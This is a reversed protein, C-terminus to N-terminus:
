KGDATTAHPEPGTGADGAGPFVVEAKFLDGDATVSLSGGMAAALGSAISLGLGSGEGSRSNDGRVFRETLEAGTKELPQESINRFVTAIKDGRHEVSLYVRTGPMAYKCINGLLNDWIRWVLRGDATVLAPTDTGSLVLKLDKAALREAYEGATQSAMVALDLPEKKAEINGTAAKSAEVLDDILKKMRQSQRSLVEVYEAAKGDLEERGLLDVYNVISTLPTKIDHSVNTILETKMRESKMRADVARSLGRSINGLDTGLCKLEYPMFTTDPVAGIVGAAMKEASSRLKAVSIAYWVAGCILAIDFLILLAISGVGIFIAELLVFALVAVVSRWIFPLRRFLKAALGFVARVARLMLYLIMYTLTNRWWKGAKIRAALSVPVWEAIALCVIVSVVSVTVGLPWILMPDSDLTLLCLYSLGAIIFCILIASLDLPIRSLFSLHIGDDKETRGAACCLFVFCLIVAALSVLAFFFVAYRLRWAAEGLRLLVSIMDGTRPTDYLDVSVTLIPDGGAAETGTEFIARDQWVSLVGSYLLEGDKENALLEEPVRVGDDTTTWLKIEIGCPSGSTGYFPVLSEAKPFTYHRLYNEAKAFLQGSSESRMNYLTVIAYGYAVPRYMDELYKEKTKSYANASYLYCVCVTEAILSLLFIFCLAAVAIKAWTKRVLNKM